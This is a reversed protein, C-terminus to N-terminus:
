YKYGITFILSSAKFLDGDKHEYISTHNTLDMGTISNAWTHGFIRGNLSAKLYFGQPSDPNNQFNYTLSDFNDLVASRRYWNSDGSFTTNSYTGNLSIESILMGRGLPIQYTIGSTAAINSSDLLTTKGKPDYANLLNTNFNINVKLPNNSLSYIGNYGLGVGLAASNYTTSDENIPQSQTGASANLRFNLSNNKDFDYTGSVNLGGCPNPSTFEGNPKFGLVSILMLSAEDSSPISLLGQGFVSLALSGDIALKDDKYNGGLVFSLPPFIAIRDSYLNTPPVPQTLFLGAKAYLSSSPDIPFTSTWAISKLCAAGANPYQKLRAIYFVGNILGQETEPVFPAYPWNSIPDDPKTPDYNPNPNTNGYL